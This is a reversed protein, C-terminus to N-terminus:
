VASGYRKLLQQEPIKIAPGYIMVESGKKKEQATYSLFYSDQRYESYIERVQPADDYSVIWPVEVNELTKAILVHDDHQYFNRYLGSGKVYYPPDLYLLTKKPLTSAINELFDVADRNYVHIRNSFRGILEIRPVLDTKNFRADLRWKGDQKLGGIVGAKLIGSRNCRNLFFTAVALEIISHNDHDALISRQRHWNEITVPIDTIAQCLEDTSEVAAKWFAHVAPDIDNIHIHSAYEHFLLELAVGAGGAFPEAYHGDLLSNTEIIKKIFPAFKGKGGPYRLPTAVDKTKGM